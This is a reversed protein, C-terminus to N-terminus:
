RPGAEQAHRDADMHLLLAPHDPMAVCSAAAGLGMRRLLELVNEGQVGAQAAQRHRLEQALLDRMERSTLSLAEVDRDQFLPLLSTRIDDM